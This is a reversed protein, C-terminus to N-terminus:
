LMPVPLTSTCMPWLKATLMWSPHTPSYTNLMDKDAEMLIKTDVVVAPEAPAPEAPAPAPEAPAPAPAPEAPAPTTTQAPPQTNAQNNKSNSAGCAVLALLMTMALLLSVIKKM